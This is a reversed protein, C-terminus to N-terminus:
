AAQRDYRRHLGGVQSTVIWRTFAIAAHVIGRWIALPTAAFPKGLREPGLVEGSRRTRPSIPQFVFSLTRRLAWSEAAAADFLARSARV